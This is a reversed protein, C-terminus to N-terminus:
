DSFGGVTDTGAGKNNWYMAREAMVPKGKDLSKVMISARTGRALRQAMNYTKRSNAPVTDTFEVRGGGARLYSIKISVDTNNPNQVMTWTERGGSVQGDPLFFVRHPSAMGISDHCAEGAATGEGWYMSREAIIPASGHVLASLDTNSVEGIDNVRITKRSNAAMRFTPQRKFGSPTMYTVTVDTPTSQPNQVMVYTTFGWATTGEALYFDSAPTTTGISVHGERRDNRYMSREPIVPVDSDVKISSDQGGIDAEMSFTERSNAPVKHVVPIAGHGDTMYTLTCTAERDNPNQILLWTEFGWRSSGEPLYWTSAPATVGISSHGEPSPAGPGRWQMTRDVAINNGGPCEVYTSFDAKGLSDAPNITTQSMAPLQQVGGAIKGSDTMYTIRASVDVPNPNEISLYTAFGWATSGEALYWAPQTVTFGNDLVAAGGETKLELRGSAAGPPVVVEIESNSWSLYNSAVQGGFSVTSAGRNSLFNSGKVKVLSGAPGFRPSISNIVPKSPKFTFLVIHDVTVSDIVYSSVPEKAVGNDSISFLYYGTDPDNDITASDGYGVTRTQPTITGHGSAVSAIVTYQRFYPEIENLADQMTLVTVGSDHLAQMETDFDAPTTSYAGGANDIQHYMLVLWYHNDRAYDIWGEVEAPTTTNTVYQSKILYRDFDNRTTYGVESCRAASYYQKVAAVVDDNYAGYPYAFDEIPGVLNELFAKSSSLEDAVQEPTLTTLDPHTASHSGMEHGQNHMSVIDSSTMRDTTDVFSTPIFQTSKIGGRNDMIPVATDAVSKWADDFSVTVIGRAFGDDAARAQPSLALMGLFTSALLCLTLVIALLSRRESYPGRIIAAAGERDFGSNSYVM